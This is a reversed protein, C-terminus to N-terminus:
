FTTHSGSRERVRKNPLLPGSYALWIIEKKKKEKGKSTAKSCTLM